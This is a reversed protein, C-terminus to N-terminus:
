WSGDDRVRPPLAGSVLTTFAHEITEGLFWEGAVDLAFVRGSEDVALLAEDDGEVGLPFLRTGLVQGFDTLTEATTAAMTPDIAFPRRRLATGAGDQRVFLGGFRELVAVAAPLPHHRSGDAGETACVEAVTKEAAKTRKRGPKWGSERLVTEVEPTLKATM